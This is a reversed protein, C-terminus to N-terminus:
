WTLSKTIEPVVLVALVPNDTLGALKFKLSTQRDEELSRVNLKVPELNVPSTEILAGAPNETQCNSCKM